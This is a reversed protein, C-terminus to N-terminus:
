RSYITQKFVQFDNRNLEEEIPPRTTHIVDLSNKFRHFLPVGPLGFEVLRYVLHQIGQAGHDVLVGFELFGAQQFAEHLGLPLDDEPHRPHVVQALDVDVAAHADLVVGGDAGVLAADAEVGGHVDADDLEETELLDELVAQGAQHHAAGLAPRVEVGLALRIVLDHPKALVEHALQEAVDAVVDIDGGAVDAHASPFHAEHEALVLLQRAVEM